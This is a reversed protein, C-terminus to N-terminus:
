HRGRIRSHAATALAQKATGVTANRELNDGTGGPRAQPLAWHAVQDPVRSVRVPKVRRNDGPKSGHVEDEAAIVRTSGPMIHAGTDSAETEGRGFNLHRDVVTAGPIGHIDANNVPAEAEVIQM